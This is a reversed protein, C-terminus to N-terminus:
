RFLTFKGFTNQSVKPVRYTQRDDGATASVTETDSDDSADNEDADTENGTNFDDVSM